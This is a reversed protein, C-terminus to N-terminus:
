KVIFKGTSVIEDLKRLDADSLDYVKREHKFFWDSTRGRYTAGLGLWDWRHTWLYDLEDQTPPEIEM